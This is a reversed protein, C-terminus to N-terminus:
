GYPIEDSACKCVKDSKSLIGRLRLLKNASVDMDVQIDKIANNIASERDTEVRNANLDLIIGDGKHAVVINCSDCPVKSLFIFEMPDGQQDYRGRFNVVCWLSDGTKLNEVDEKKM